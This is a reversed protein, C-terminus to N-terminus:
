SNKKYQSYPLEMNMYTIIHHPNREEVPPLEEWKGYVHNLYEKPHEVGYFCADEFPYLQPTGYINLDMIEKEGYVGMMLGGVKSKEPSKISTYTHLRQYWYRSGKRIATRRFFYNPNQNEYQYSYWLCKKYHHIVKLHIKNMLKSSFGGDLPMVDIFVGRALQGEGYVITSNKDYIKAYKHRYDDDVTYFGLELEQEEWVYQPLKVLQEFYCRYMGIDMDDDWPIFGGHRICGLMSGEILYYPIGQREMIMHIKKMMEVLRKHIDSLQSETM